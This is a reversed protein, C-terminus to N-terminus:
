KKYIYDNNIIIFINYKNLFRYETNALLNKFNYKNQTTCSFNTNICNSYESFNKVNKNFIGFNLLIIISSKFIPNM